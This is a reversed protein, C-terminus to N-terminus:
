KKKIKIKDINKIMEKLAKDGYFGQVLDALGQINEQLHGDIWDLPTREVNPANRIAKKARNIERNSYGDKQMYATETNWTRNRIERESRVRYGRVIAGNIMVYGRGVGYARFVGYRQFDFKVKYAPEANSLKDVFQALTIRLKGKGKTSALSGRAQARIKMAWKSVLRNFEDITMLQEDAM